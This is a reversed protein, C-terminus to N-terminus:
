PRGGTDLWRAATGLAIGQRSGHRRDVLRQAEARLQQVVAVIAAEAVAGATDWVVGPRVDSPPADRDDDWGLERMIATRVADLLQQQGPTLGPDTATPDAM